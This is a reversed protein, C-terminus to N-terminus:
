CLLGSLGVYDLEIRHEGLEVSPPIKVSPEFYIDMKFLVLAIYLWTNAKAEKQYKIVLGVSKLMYDIAEEIWELRSQFTIQMIQGLGRPAEIDIISLYENITAFIGKHSIVRAVLLSILTSGVINELIELLHFDIPSSKEIKLHLNNVINYERGWQIARQGQM